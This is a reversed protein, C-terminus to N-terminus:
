EYSLVVNWRVPSRSREVGYRDYEISYGGLWTERGRKEQVSVMEIHGSIQDLMFTPEDM